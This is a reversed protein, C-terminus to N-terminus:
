RLRGGFLHVGGVFDLLWLLVAIIVIVSILGKFIPPMPVYTQIAWVIVGVIALVIVITLLTAM